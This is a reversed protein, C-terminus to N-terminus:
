VTDVSYDPIIGITNMATDASGDRFLGHDKILVTSLGAAHGGLIDTHLTDGVMAIRKLDLNTHGLRAELRPRLKTLALDFVPHYPKGFWQVLGSTHAHQPTIGLDHLAKAIWFGPERSFGHDQPAAVDPNAVMVPVGANLAAMLGAQYAASWQVAGFFGIGDCAQWAAHDHPDLAAVTLDLGQPIDTFGDVVGVHRLGPDCHHQWHHLLADRSSIVDNPTIPLGLNQYKMGSIAGDKSAGNTLVMVEVGSARAHDLMAAAGPVAGSGVNLVGFGDLLLADFHDLLDSLSSSSIPGSSSPHGSFSPMFPRLDEYVALTTALDMVALDMVDSGMAAANPATLNDYITKTMTVHQLTLYLIIM